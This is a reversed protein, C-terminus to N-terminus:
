KVEGRRGCDYLVTILMSCKVPSKHFFPLLSFALTEMVFICIVKFHVNPLQARLPGKLWWWQPNAGM